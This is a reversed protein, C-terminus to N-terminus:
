KRQVKTIVVVGRDFQISARTKVGTERGETQNYYYCNQRIALGHRYDSIAFAKYGGVPIARIEEIGITPKDNRTKM